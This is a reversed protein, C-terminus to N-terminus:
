RRLRRHEVAIAVASFDSQRDSRSVRLLLSVAVHLMVHRKTETELEHLNTTLTEELFVENKMNLQM